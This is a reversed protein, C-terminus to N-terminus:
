HLQRSFGTTTQWVRLRGPRALIHSQLGQDPHIERNDVLEGGTELLNDVGENQGKFDLTKSLILVQTQVM